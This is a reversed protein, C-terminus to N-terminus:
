PNSRSPARAPPRGPKRGVFRVGTALNENMTRAAFPELVATEFGDTLALIWELSHHRLIAGGDIEFVGYREFRTSSEAYRTLNREDSHLLFDSLLLIGGPRLLRRIEGILVRQEADRAVCTLVATLLVADFSADPHPTPPSECVDFRVDPLQRRAREIMAESPDIGALDRYALRALESLQRGYGCGYDLVRAAPDVFARLRDVDLPLTFRATPAVRDWYEHQGDGAIM